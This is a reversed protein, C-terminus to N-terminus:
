KDTKTQQYTHLTGLGLLGLLLPMLTGMDMEPAAIPHGSLAAIWTGLPALFYQYAMGLVCVWGAGGRWHQLPDTSTAEAQNIAAQAKALDTDATLRALDGSQQMKLLELKAANAQQPDPWLRDILKGGIDLAASIPDFSM